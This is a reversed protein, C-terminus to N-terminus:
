KTVVFNMLKKKKRDVVFDLANQVQKEKMM